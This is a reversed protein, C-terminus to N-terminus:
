KQVLRIAFGSVEVEPYVESLKGDKDEKTEEWISVGKAKLYAIARLIDNTSIIIQGHDCPFRSKTVEFDSGVLISSTEEETSFYFLKSLTRASNLAMKRSEENIGLHHFEFGLMTSVAERTLRTIEAFRGSSILDAKVM